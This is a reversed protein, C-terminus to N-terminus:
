GINMAPSSRPSAAGSVDKSGEAEIAQQLQRIATPPPEAARKGSDEMGNIAHVFFTLFPNSLDSDPAYLARGQRVSRIFFVPDGRRSREDRPLPSGCPLTSKSITFVSPIRLRRRALNSVDFAPADTDPEADSITGSWVIGFM